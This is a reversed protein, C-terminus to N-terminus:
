GEKGYPAILSAFRLANRWLAAPPAIRPTIM